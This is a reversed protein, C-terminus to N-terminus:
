FSYTVLAFIDNRSQYTSAGEVNVRAEDVTDFTIQYNWNPAPRYHLSVNLRQTDQKLGTSFNEITNSLAANVSLGDYGGMSYRVGSVIADNSTLPAFPNSQVDNLQQNLFFGISGGRFQLRNEVGLQHRRNRSQRSPDRLQSELFSTDISGRSGGLQYSFRANVEELEETRSEILENTTNQTIYNMTGSLQPSAVFAWNVAQRDITTKFTPTDNDVTGLSLGLSTGQGEPAPPSFNLKFQREFTTNPELTGEQSQANRITFNYDLPAPDLKGSVGAFFVSSRRLLPDVELDRKASDEDLAYQLVLNGTPGLKFNRFGSFSIRTNENGGPVRVPSNAEYSGSESSELTLIHHENHRETAQQYEFRAQLFDNFSSDTQRAGASNYTKFSRGTIHASPLGPPTFDVNFSDTQAAQWNRTAGQQSSYVDSRQLQYYARWRQPQRLEVSFQYMDQRADISLQQQKDLLDTTVTRLYLSTVAEAGSGFTITRPRWEIEWVGKYDDRFVHNDILDSEIIRFESSHTFRPLERVADRPSAALALGPIFLGACALQLLRPLM